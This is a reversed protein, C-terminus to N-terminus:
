NKLRCEQMWRYVNGVREKFNVPFNNTPVPYLNKALPEYSDVFSTLVTWPEPNQYLEQLKDVTTRRFICITRLTKEHFNTYKRLNNLNMNNYLTNYGTCFGSENDIFWLMRSLKGYGLNHISQRNYIMNRTGDLQGYAGEQHNTIRDIHAILYDLVVLDTWQVLYYLESSTLSKLDPSTALLPGKSGKDLLVKPYGATSELDDIFKSLVVFKGEQWQLSNFNAAYKGWNIGSTDVTSLVVQPINKIDLLRALYFTYIEGHIMITHPSRYRVCLQTGDALVAYQNPPVGCRFADGLVMSTIPQSRVRRSWDDVESWTYASPTMAETERSWVIGDAIVAPIPQIIDADNLRQQIPENVNIQRQNELRLQVDPVQFFQQQQQNQQQQNALLQQQVPQIYQMPQQVRHLQQQQYQQQQQQLPQFPLQNNLAQQNQHQEQQRQMIALQQQLQQQQINQQPQQHQANQPQQQQQIHYPQQQQQQHIDQRPMIQKNLQQIPQQQIQNQQQQLQIPQQQHIPNQQQQNQQVSVPQQQLIQNQQQQQVLQQQPIQNQQQQQQQVPQQQPIQNQQQQQQQVPQQQPIQNQQQQQQQVPQQQPIQNQQQQQQQVPQQQPIQNQHQQLLVPNQHHIQNQQHNHQVPLHQPIQNQQQLPQHQVAEHPVHKQALGQQIRQNLLSQQNKPLQPQQQHHQQPFNRSQGEQQQQVMQHPQRHHLINMEQLQSKLKPQDQKGVMQGHQGNPINTAHPAANDNSNARIGNLREQLQHYLEQQQQVQNQLYQLQQAADRVDQDSVDDNKVFHDDNVSPRYDASRGVAPKKLYESIRRKPPNQPIRGHLPKLNAYQATLLMHSSIVAACIVLIIIPSYRKCTSICRVRRLIWM